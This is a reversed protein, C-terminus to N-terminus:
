KKRLFVYGKMKPRKFPSIKEKHPSPQASFVGQFSSEQNINQHYKNSRVKLQNSFHFNHESSDPINLKSQSSFARLDMLRMNLDQNRPGDSSHYNEM